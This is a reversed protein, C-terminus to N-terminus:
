NIPSFIKSAIAAASIRDSIEVFCSFWSSESVSIQENFQNFRRILIEWISDGKYVWRVRSSWLEWWRLCSEACTHTVLRIAIKEGSVCARKGASEEFCETQGCAAPLFSGLFLNTQILGKM